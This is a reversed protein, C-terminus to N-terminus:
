APEDSLQLSTAKNRHISVVALLQPLPIEGKAMATATLCSIPRVMLILCELDVCLNVTLACQFAHYACCVLAKYSRHVLRTWLETPHHYM